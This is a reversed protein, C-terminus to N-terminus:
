GNPPRFGSAKVWDIFVDWAPGPVRVAPKARDKSDRVRVSDAAVMVEVCNDSGSFSSTRFSAGSPRDVASM